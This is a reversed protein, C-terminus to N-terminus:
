RIRRPHWHRQLQTYVAAACPLVAVRSRLQHWCTSAQRRMSRSCVAVPLLLRRDTTSLPRVCLLVAVRSACNIGHLTSAQCRTSRPCVAVSFLLRRPYVAVACPLVAVRSACDVGAYFGPPADLSLVCRRLAASASLLCHSCVFCCQLALLATSVLMSAEPLADFSLVRLAASALSLCHSCVAASCHSFRLQFWCLLRQCRMSRPCVRRRLVASAALTSLLQVCCCQLALLATSVLMSAATSCRSFRLQCWCLLRAACRALACVAVSFVASASSLGRSCVAASCLSFRLQCWCLLRAACRALACVAVSFVASASSLGRSCVAASCRSFRLQCWCLLGAACRALPCPAVACPLVTILALLATSALMWFGPLADLSPVRRCLVSGSRSSLCRSCVAASHLALHRTSVVAHLLRAACRARSPVRRCLVAPRRPYVAVACSPVAIRSARNVGTYFGPPAGLSPACPSPSCCVGITSLPQVRCCQLALFATSVLMSAQCRMSRPCVAVSFLQRRPYVAVACPLVAGRSARNVGAYFGPPAGLSSACPSPSCCVGITSLPQVGLLVAVRSACNFGAYFGPLADLSLVRRRLVASASSLCRGCVAASCRSFRPQRWCLLRAACRALVCVAVSLLLSVGITSLPQVCLLVAVRSACNFGAYFGPLADLSPVRRRHVASAASLCRSCVAASCRSFRLQRWLMSTQCRV